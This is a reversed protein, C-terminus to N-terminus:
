LKASGDRDTSYIREFSTYQQHTPTIILFLTIQGGPDFIQFKVGVFFKEDGVKSLNYAYKNQIVPLKLLLNERM